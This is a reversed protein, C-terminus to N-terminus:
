LRNPNSHGAQRQRAASKLRAVADLTHKEALEGELAAAAAAAAAGEEVDGFGGGGGGGGGGGDEDMQTGDFGSSLAM